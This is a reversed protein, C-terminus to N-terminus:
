VCAHSCISHVRVCLHIALPSVHMRSRAGLLSVASYVVKSITHRTDPPHRVCEVCQWMLGPVSARVGARGCVHICAPTRTHAHTISCDSSWSPATSQPTVAAPCCMQVHTTVTNQSINLSKVLPARVLPRCVSVCMACSQGGPRSLSKPQGNPVLM